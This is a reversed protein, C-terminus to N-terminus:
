TEQLVYALDLLLHRGPAPAELNGGALQPLPREMARACGSEAADQGSAAHDEFRHPPWEPNARGCAPRRTREDEQALSVGDVVPHVPSEWDRDLKLGRIGAEM